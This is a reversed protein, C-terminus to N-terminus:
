KELEKLSLPNKEEWRKLRKGSKKGITNMTKRGRDRLWTDM